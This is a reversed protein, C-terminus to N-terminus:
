LKCPEYLVFLPVLGSLQVAVASVAIAGEFSKRSHQDVKFRARARAANVCILNPIQDATIMSAVVKRVHIAIEAGVTVPFEWLKRSEVLM